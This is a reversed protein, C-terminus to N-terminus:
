VGSARRLAVRQSIPGPNNLLRVPRPSIVEEPDYYFCHLPRSRRHRLSLSKCGNGQGGAQVMSPRMLFGVRSVFGLWRGARRRRM